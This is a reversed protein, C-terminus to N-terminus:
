TGAFSASRLKFESGYFITFCKSTELRKSEDIWREFDKACKGLRVEKICRIDLAGEFAQRQPMNFRAWLVQLTERRVSLMRREPRKRPFFKLVNTGQEIYSILQDGEQILMDEPGPLSLAEM